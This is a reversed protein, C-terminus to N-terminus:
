TGLTRPPALSVSTRAMPPRSREQIKPNREADARNDPTTKNSFTAAIYTPTIRPIGSNTNISRTKKPPWINSLSRASRVPRHSYISTPASDEATKEKYAAIYEKLKKDKEEAEKKLKEVYSPLREEESNLEELEVEDLLASRRDVINVVPEEEKSPVIKKKPMTNKM